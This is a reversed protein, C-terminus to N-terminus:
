AAGGRGARGDAARAARTPRPPSGASSRGEYMVILRDALALLEDLDESVLLVAASGAARAARRPRVRDRRHRPRTDAARGRDGEARALARARARAEAPQRRLAVRGPRRAHGPDFREILAEANRRLRRQGAAARPPVRAPARARPEAGREARRRRRRAPGGPDARARLSGALARAPSTSGASRSAGATPRRMGCLVDVLESQGNGSVGAVGLIEGGAVELSVDSCGPLLLGEVRLAVAGAHAAAPRQVGMTPRGVMLSALERDDVEATARTGVVVGRRLVTVRSLDRAGRAAQPQHLRDGDRRRPPPAADRVADVEQPVLVATPEDLILVRCDRYLAKLIEVRQQEGVSLRDVRARPIPASASASPRTPWRRRPSTSARAGDTAGLVVNETVTMPRVLAFHQTVMGIGAAIADKPSHIAVPRRRRPDHRRRAADARLPDADADVQRRRERRAARQAEGRAVAFDVGDNAVLEGFRKTIGRLEVAPLLGVATTTARAM